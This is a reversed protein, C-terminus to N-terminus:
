FSVAIQVENLEAGSVDTSFVDLRGSTSNSQFSISASFTGNVVSIFGQSIVGVSNDILRYQVKEVNASGGVVVGSKIVSNASPLKITINGSSSVAWQSPPTTVPTTLVGRNDTSTGQNIGTSPAVQKEGNGVVSKAPLQKITPQPLPQRSLGHRYITFYSVTGLGLAIVLVVLAYQKRYSNLKNAM